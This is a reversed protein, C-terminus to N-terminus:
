LRVTSVRASFDMIAFGQNCLACVHFDQTMQTGPNVCDSCSFSECGIMNCRICKPSEEDWACDECIIKGCKHFAGDWRHEQPCRLLDPACMNCWTGGCYACLNAWASADSRALVRVLIPARSVLTFTSVSARVRNTSEVETSHKNEIGGQWLSMYQSMNGDMLNACGEGRINCLWVSPDNLVHLRVSIPDHSM